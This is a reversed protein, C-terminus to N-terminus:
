DEVMVAYGFGVAGFGNGCYLMYKRGRHEYVNPYAIMESDWGAASREIGVCEDLREWDLGNISEAYGMRYSQTKDFRYGDSGRYCYWMRYKDGERIVAPRANAEGPTKYPICTVNPRRWVFGDDSEAYKIQYVPEPKGAVVLFGTSSAYWCKWLGNEVLIYPTATFFPEDPTRDIVPGPFVRAFTSGGDDSVALGIANRYPVTVGKNWGIYYLYKKGGYNVICSPMAGSDDFCGLEGPSLVPRDHVRIIRAPDGAEADIFTTHTRGQTDRPGFYIRVIEASIKDACPISAHRAMWEYRGDAKFILGKKEWRM